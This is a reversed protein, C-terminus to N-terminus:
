GHLNEQVDNMGLEAFKGLTGVQVQLQEVVDGQQGVLELHGINELRPGPSPRGDDVVGVGELIQLVTDTVQVDLVQLAGGAQEMQALQGLKDLPENWDDRLRRLGLVTVQHICRGPWDISLLLQQPSKGQWSVACLQNERTLGDCRMVWCTPSSSQCYRKSLDRM